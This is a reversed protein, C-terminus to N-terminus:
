ISNNQSQSNPSPTFYQEVADKLNLDITEELTRIKETFNQPDKSLVFASRKFITSKYDNEENLTPSNFFSTGICICVNIHLSNDSEKIVSGLIHLVPIQELSSSENEKPTDIAISYRASQHRNFFPDIEPDGTREELYCRLTQNTKEKFLATIKEQLKLQTLVQQGLEFQEHYSRYCERRIEEPDRSPQQALEKKYRALERNSM